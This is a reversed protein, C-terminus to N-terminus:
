DATSVRTSSTSPAAAPHLGSSPHCHSDILGPIVTSGRADVVVDATDEIGKGVATIRGGAIQISDADLIPRRIDGSVLTGINRILTKM